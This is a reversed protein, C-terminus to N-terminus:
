EPTPLGELLAGPRTQRGAVLKPINEVRTSRQGRELQRFYSWHVDCLHAAQQELVPLTSFQRISVITFLVLSYDASGKLAPVRTAGGIGPHFPHCGM